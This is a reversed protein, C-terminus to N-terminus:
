TRMPVLVGILEIDPSKIEIVRPDGYSDSPKLNLQSSKNGIIKSAKAFDAMYKGNFGFEVPKPDGVRPFVKRWDPFAWDIPKTNFVCYEDVFDDDICSGVTLTKETVGIKVVAGEIIPSYKKAVGIAHRIVDSSIIFGQKTTEALPDCGYALLRHGDTSVIGGEEFYLGNLHHRTIDTSAAILMAELVRYDYKYM